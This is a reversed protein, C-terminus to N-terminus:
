CLQSHIVMEALRVRGGPVDLALAGRVPPGKQAPGEAAALM